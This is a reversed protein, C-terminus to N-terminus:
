RIEWIEVDSFSTTKQYKEQIYNDIINEHKQYYKNVIVYDLIVFKPKEKKLIELNKEFYEKPLHNEILVDNFYPNSKHLEFYMNPLFPYSYINDNGIVNKIEKLTKEVYMTEIFFNVFTISLYVAM